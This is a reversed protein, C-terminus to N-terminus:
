ASSVWYVGVRYEDDWIRYVWISVSSSRMVFLFSRSSMVSDEDGSGNASEDSRDSTFYQDLNSMWVTWVDGIRATVRDVTGSTDTDGLDVAVM